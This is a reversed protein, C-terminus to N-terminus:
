DEKKHDPPLVQRVVAPMNDPDPCAGVYTPPVWRLILKRAAPDSRAGAWFHHWHGRRMHPRPPAHTGSAPESYAPLPASRLAAGIRIGVDWVHPEASRATAPRRHLAAHGSRRPALEANQACLYLVLQVLTRVMSDLAGSASAPATIGSAYRVRLQRLAGGITRENLLLPVFSVRLGESGLPYLLLLGLYDARMDTDHSRCVFVGHLPAGKMDTLGTHALEIYFAPYPMAAFADRPLDDATDAQAALHAALAADMVFIQKASRWHALTCMIQADRRRALPDPEAAAVVAAAAAPPAIEWDPCEAGCECILRFREIGLQAWCQPYTNELERLLLLPPYSGTPPQKPM